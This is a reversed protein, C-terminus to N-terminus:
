PPVQAAGSAFSQNQPPLEQLPMEQATDNAAQVVTALNKVALDRANRFAKAGAVFIRAIMRRPMLGSNICLIGFKGGAKVPRAPIM